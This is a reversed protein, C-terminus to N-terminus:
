PRPSYTSIGDWTFQQLGSGDQNIISLNTFGNRWTGFILHNGDSLWSPMGDSGDTFTLRKEDSGDTNILHVASYQYTRATFAIQQGDPSWRPEADQTSNDTLRQLGTGDLNVVHIELDGDINLAFAIRRGDPSWAPSVSDGREILQTSAGNETNIVFIESNWVYVINPGNPSASISHADAHEVIRRLNNGDTGVIYIEDGGVSRSVSFVIHKGDWLWTPSHGVFPDSTLQRVNRGNADAVLIGVNGNHLGSFTIKNSDPSWVSYVGIFPGMSANEKIQFKSGSLTDLLYINTTGVAVTGGVMMRGMGCALGVLMTCPV